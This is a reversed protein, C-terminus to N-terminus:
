NFTKGPKYSFKSKKFKNAAENKTLDPEVDFLSYPDESLNFSKQAGFLSGNQDFDILAGNSLDFDILPKAAHCVSSAGLALVFMRRSTSTNKFMSHTLLILAM